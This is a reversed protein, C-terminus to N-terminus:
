KHFLISRRYLLTDTGIKGLKSHRGFYIWGEQGMTKNDTGFLTPYRYGWNAPTAILLQAASWNILDNSTRIYISGEKSFNTHVMVFKGLYSNWIVSGHWFNNGSQGRPIIPTFNGGIGPETFNGQYYKTWVNPSTKSARAISIGGISFNTPWEDYIMYLYDGQEIITPHATGQGACVSPNNPYFGSLAYGQKTFTKGDDMSTAYGVTAYSPNNSCNAKNVYIESHYWGHIIGTAPDRWTSTIAAYKDEYPDNPIAGGLVTQMESTSANKYIGSADSFSDISANESLCSLQVSMKYICTFFTKVSNGIVEASMHGDPSGGSIGYDGKRIIPSISGVEISSAISSSATTTSLDLIFSGEDYDPGENCTIHRSPVNPTYLSLLTRQGDFQGSANVGLGYVYVDADFNYPLTIAYGPLNDGRGMDSRTEGILIGGQGYAAGKYVEVPIAGVFDADKAWGSISCTYAQLNDVYGQPAQQVEKITPNFLTKDCKSSTKKNVRFYIVDGSSVTTSANLAISKGKDLFSSWIQTNNKYVSVNVGDDNKCIELDSITASITISRNADSTWARVSEKDQPSQWDSGVIIGPQSGVWYGLSNNYKLPTYSTGNFESYSWGNAGQTTSFGASATINIPPVITEAHASTLPILSLIATLVATTIIKKNM